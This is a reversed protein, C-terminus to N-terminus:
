FGQNELLVADSVSIIWIMGILFDYQGFVHNIMKWTCPKTKCKATTGANKTKGRWITWMRKGVVKLSKLNRPL